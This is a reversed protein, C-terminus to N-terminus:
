FLHGWFESSTGNAIMGVDGPSNRLDNRGGICARGSFGVGIRFRRTNQYVGRRRPGDMYFVLIGL